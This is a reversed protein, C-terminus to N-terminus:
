LSCIVEPCDPFFPHYGKALKSAILKDFIKTAEELSVPEPTKTGVTLNTDHRYSAFTVIFGDGKPEIAAHFEHDFQGEHFHLSTSKVTIPELIM